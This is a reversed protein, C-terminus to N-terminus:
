KLHVYRSYRLHFCHDIFEKVPLRFFTRVSLEERQHTDFAMQELHVPSLQGVVLSVDIQVWNFADQDRVLVCVLERV